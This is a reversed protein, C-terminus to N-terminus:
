NLTSPSIEVGRNIVTMFLGCFIDASCKDTLDKWVTLDPNLKNLIQIIHEDVSRDRPLDSALSWLNTKRVTYNKGVQHKDGRHYFTSSNCNLAKTIEEPSLVDSTVRLTVTFGLPLDELNTNETSNM